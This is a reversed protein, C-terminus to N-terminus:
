TGLKLNQYKNEYKLILNHPDWDHISPYPSGNSKKKIKNQGVKITYKLKHKM